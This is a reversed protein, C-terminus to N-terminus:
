AAKELSAEQYCREFEQPSMYGLASHLYRNNYFILGASLKERAEELGAFEELWLLEEKLTRMFRETEANGKPNNFSTFIQEIDLTATVKLFSRSTPQCGNDSVLKLGHGRVRHPFERLVAEKLAERWEQTRCRWSLQWGLVKRSFWDLVIVLCAWGFDPITFKTMDIGWFQGPRHARPKRGAPQRKAGYRRQPVLLEHERMLRYVRKLGVM